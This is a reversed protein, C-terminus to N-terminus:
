AWGPVLSITPWTMARLTFSHPRGGPTKASSKPAPESIPAASTSWGLTFATPNVPESEAPLASMCRAAARGSGM